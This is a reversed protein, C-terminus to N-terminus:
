NRPKSNSVHPRVKLINIKLQKTEREDDQIRAAAAENLVVFAVPIEGSYVDPVGVVCAEEVDPHRRIHSQLEDPSM